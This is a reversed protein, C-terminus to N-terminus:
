LFLKRPWIKLLCNKMVNTIDPLNNSDYINDVTFDNDSPVIEGCAKARESSPTRMSSCVDPFDVNFTRCTYILTEDM